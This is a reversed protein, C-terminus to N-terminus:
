EWTIEDQIVKRIISEPIIEPQKELMCSVSKSGAQLYAEQFGGTKRKCSQWSLVGTKFTTPNKTEETILKFGNNTRM